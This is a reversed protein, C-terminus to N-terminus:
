KPYHNPWNKIPNDTKNNNLKSLEKYIYKESTSTKFIKKQDIAQMKMKWITDKLYHFNITTTLDLKAKKRRHKM